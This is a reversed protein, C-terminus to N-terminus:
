TVYRGLGHPAATDESYSKRMAGEVGRGGTNRPDHQSRYRARKGTEPYWNVDAFKKWTGPVLQCRCVEELNGTLGLVRM